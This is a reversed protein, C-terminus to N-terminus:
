ANQKKPPLSAVIVDTADKSWPALDKEFSLHRHGFDGGRKELETANANLFAAVRRLEEPAGVFSVESLTLLGDAGKGPRARGFARIKM